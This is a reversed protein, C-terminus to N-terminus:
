AMHLEDRLTPWELSSTSVKEQASQNVEIGRAKLHYPLRNQISLCVEKSSTCCTHWHIACKFETESTFPFSIHLMTCSGFHVLSASCSWNLLYTLLTCTTFFKASLLIYNLVGSWLRYEADIVNNNGVTLCQNLCQNVGKFNLWPCNNHPWHPCSWKLGM